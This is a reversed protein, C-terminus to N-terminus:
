ANLVCNRFIRVRLKEILSTQDAWIFVRETGALMASFLRCDSNDVYLQLAEVVNYALEM